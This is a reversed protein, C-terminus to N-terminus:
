GSVLVEQCEGLLDAGASLVMCQALSVPVAPETRLETLVAARNPRGLPDLIQWGPVLLREEKLGSFTVAGLNLHLEEPAEATGGDDPVAATGV